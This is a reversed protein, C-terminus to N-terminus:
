LPYIGGDNSQQQEQLSFLALMSDEIEPHWSMIMAFINYDTSWHKALIM